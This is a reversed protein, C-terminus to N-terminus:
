LYEYKGLPHTGKQHGVNQQHMRSGYQNNGLLARGESSVNPVVSEAASTQGLQNSKSHSPFSRFTETSPANSSGLTTNSFSSSPLSSQKVSNESSQRRVGVAGVTPSPRSDLSPVHVPDSSSSYVGLVSSTSKPSYLSSNPQSDNLKPPESVAKQKEELSNRTDSESPKVIPPHRSHINRPGNPTQFASLGASHKQNILNGVTSSRFFSFCHSHNSKMKFAFHALM